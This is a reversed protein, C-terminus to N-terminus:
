GAATEDHPANTLTGEEFLFGAIDPKGAADLVTKLIILLPVALLAGTTGWVWGWYSLALLILLPNITLKRGVLTPTILNAELLHIGIFATAPLVAYWVHPFTMM